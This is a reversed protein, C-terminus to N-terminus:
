LLPSRLVSSVKTNCIILHDQKIVNASSTAGEIFRQRIVDSCGVKQRWICKNWPLAFNYPPCSGTIWTHTLTETHCNMILAFMLLQRDVFWQYESPISKSDWKQWYSYSIKIGRIKKQRVLSSVTYSYQSRFWFNVENNHLYQYRIQTEWWIQNPKILDSLM